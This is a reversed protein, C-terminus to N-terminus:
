AIDVLESVFNNPHIDYLLDCVMKEWEGLRFQFSAPSWWSEISSSESSSSKGFGSEWIRARMAGSAQGTTSLLGIRRLKPNRQALQHAHSAAFDRFAIFPLYIVVSVLNTIRSLNPISQLNDGYVPGLRQLQNLNGSELHWFIPESVLKHDSFGRYLYVLTDLNPTITNAVYTDLTLVELAKLLMLPEARSGYLRECRVREIGDIHAISLPRNTELRPLPYPLEAFLERVPRHITTQLSLCNINPLKLNRTWASRQREERPAWPASTASTEFPDSTWLYPLELRTLNCMRNIANVIQLTLLPFEISDRGVRLILENVLEVVRSTSNFTQLAASIQAHGELDIKAYLARSAELYLARSTLCLSLLDAKERIEEVIQRYLDLPLERSM